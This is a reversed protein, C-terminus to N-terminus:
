RNNAVMSSPPVRKFPFKYGTKLINLVFSSAGLEKEWFAFFEPRGIRGPVGANTTLKKGLYATENSFSNALERDQEDFIFLPEKAEEKTAKAFECDEM